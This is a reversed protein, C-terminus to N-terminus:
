LAIFWFWRSFRFRWRRSGSRSWCTNRSELVVAVIAIIRLGYKLLLNVQTIRVWNTRAMRYSRSRSRSRWRWSRMDMLAYSTCFLIFAFGAFLFFILVFDADSYGSEAIWSCRTLTNKLSLCNSRNGSHIGDIWSVMQM